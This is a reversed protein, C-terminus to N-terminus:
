LLHQRTTAIGRGREAGHTTVSVQQEDSLRVENERQLVRLLMDRTALPRVRPPYRSVSSTSCQLLACPLVRIRDFRCRVCPMM